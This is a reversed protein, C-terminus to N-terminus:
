FIECQNGINVLIPIISKDIVEIPYLSFKKKSPKYFLSLKGKDKGDLIIKLKVTYDRYSDTIITADIGVKKLTEIYQESKLTLENQCLTQMSNRIINNLPQNRIERIKGNIQQPLNITPQPLIGALKELKDISVQKIQEPVALLCSRRHPRDPVDDGKRSLTGYFKWIRSANFVKIDIECLNDSHKNSIVNLCNKIINTITETNGLEISYLLHAGNGSDAKVPDPFGFDSLWAAVDDAKKIAFIHEEDSSSIGSPRKPDIDIPLWRRQVIDVDSTTSEKRGIKDIHNARRAFLIPNIENLVVYINKIERNAGLKGAKEVLIDMDNFYGSHTSDYKDFARVEVVQGTKFLVKLTNKMVNHSDSDKLDDLM